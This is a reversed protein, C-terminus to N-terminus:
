KSGDMAEMLMANAGFMLSWIILVMAFAVSDCEGDKICGDSERGNVDGCSSGLCSLCRRVYLRLIKKLEDLNMRRTM